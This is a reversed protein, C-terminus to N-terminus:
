AQFGRKHSGFLLSLPSITIAASAASKLTKGLVQASVGLRKQAPLLPSSCGGDWDCIHILFEPHSPM